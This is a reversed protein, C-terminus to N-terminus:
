RAPDVKVMWCKQESRGLLYVSGHEDMVIKPGYIEERRLSDSGLVGFVSPPLELRRVFGASLASRILWYIKLHWPAILRDGEIRKEGRRVTWVLGHGNGGDIKEPSEGDEFTLERVPGGSAATVQIPETVTFMLGASDVYSVLYDITHERKGAPTYIETSGGSRMVILRGVGDMSSEGGEHFSQPDFDDLPVVRTLNGAADFHALYARVPSGGAQAASFMVAVGTDTAFVQQPSIESEGMPEPLRGTLPFAWLLKGAASYKTLRAAPLPELFVFDGRADRVFDSPYADSEAGLPSPEFYFQGASDGFRVEFLVTM